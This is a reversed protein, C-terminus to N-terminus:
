RSWRTHNFNRNKEKKKERTLMNFTSKEGRKGSERAEDENNEYLRAIHLCKSSCREFKIYFAQDWTSNFYMLVTRKHLCEYIGFMVKNFRRCSSLWTAYERHLYKFKIKEWKKEKEDIDCGFSPLQSRERMTTDIGYGSTQRHTELM